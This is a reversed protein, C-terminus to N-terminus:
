VLSKPPEPLAGPVIGAGEHQATVFVRKGMPPAPLGMMVAISMACCSPTAAGCCGGNCTTKTKGTMSAASADIWQAKSTEAKGGRESVIADPVVTADVASQVAPTTNHDHGAHAFGASPALLVGAVLVTVAFLMRAILSRNM